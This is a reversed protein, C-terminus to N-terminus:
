AEGAHRVLSQFRLRSRAALSPDTVGSFPRRRRTSIRTDTLFAWAM